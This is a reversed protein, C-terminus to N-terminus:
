GYISNISVKKALQTMNDKTGFLEKAQQREGDKVKQFDLFRVTPCQFLVWYRYHEKKTVPNDTLVLHTLRM